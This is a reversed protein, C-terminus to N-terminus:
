KVALVRMHSSFGNRSIWEQLEKKAQPTGKKAVQSWFRGPDPTRELIDWDLQGPTSAEEITFGCRRLLGSISDPNFLNLHAPPYVSKSREWLFQIDFGQGNLTTLMLRGGPKLLRFAALAFEKPNHLHEFLEFATLLDFAPADRLQELSSCLVDIGRDRCIEAQEGSPEIAICRSQPWLKQLESCFLGFGAGIDGAIWGPDDGFRNRLYEARPKFIKERRTEAVPMFFDHIWYKTSASEVYFKQLADFPPRTRAFLTACSDCVAYDFGDKTFQSTSLTSDCAPCNVEQLRGQLLRRCDEQVMRLYTSLTERPRIEEEKM